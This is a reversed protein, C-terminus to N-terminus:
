ADAGTVKRFHDWFEPYSTNICAVNEVRVPEEAFLTLISMAMAIRHDGRSDVTMGGKIRARGRVKMGDPTEEVSVGAGILGGAMTAIRDSEKVRLEAADRIVTTGEALAGMVSVLPLEDILNPVEQGGVETAKLKGGRIIVDGMPEGGDGASDSPRVQVNAGMRKLVAMFATRRPNLGVGQITVTAGEAGAAAAMWFSASSFDGPVVFKGNKLTPGAEGYGELSITKGDCALPVGLAGLLRETHDRTAEPEIVTTRGKAFLGALLVCSKVQASAVPLTYTIGKLGGGRITVPATGKEGTLDVKAGMLELPAKIRKMPRSQLSADGTMVSTFPQGALLGAILRISTGSNGMDLVTKPETLRGGTGKVKVVEGDFRVTAGMDEVAKLTHLCDESSLFGRIESEGRALATLMGLRHSISKDGPVRIVADRVRAPKVVKFDKMEM